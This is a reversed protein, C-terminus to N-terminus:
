CSVARRRRACTSRSQTALTHPSSAELSTTMGSLVPDCLLDDCPPLRKLVEMLSKRDRTTHFLTTKVCLLTYYGGDFVGVQSHLHTGELRLFLIDWFVDKRIRWHSKEPHYHDTTSFMPITSVHGSNGGAILRLADLSSCM